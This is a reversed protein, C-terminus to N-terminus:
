STAVKDIIIGVGLFIVIVAWLGIVISWMLVKTRRSRKQWWEGRSFFALMSAIVLLVGGPAFPLYIAIFGVIASGLMLVAAARPTAISLAAGVPAVMPALVGVIAAVGEEESGHDAGILIGPTGALAM